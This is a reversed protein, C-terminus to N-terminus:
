SCELCNGMLWCTLTDEDRMLPAERCVCLGNWFTVILWFHLFSCLTCHENRIWVDVVCNRCRLSLFCRPLPLAFVTLVLSSPHRSLSLARQVGCLLQEWSVKATRNGSCSGFLLVMQHVLMSPPSDWLVRHQKTNTSVVETMHSSPVDVSFCTEMLDETPM